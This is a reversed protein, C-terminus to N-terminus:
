YRPRLRGGLCHAALMWLATTSLSVRIVWAVAAGELGSRDILWFLYPIYMALEAVHLKATLDPRGYAQILCQSIHGFSNIFVGIAILQAVRYSQEAFDHNIWWALLPEAMSVALATVPLMIWLVQKMTRRYLMSITTADSRIRRAFVPFLVTVFIGPILLLNIV